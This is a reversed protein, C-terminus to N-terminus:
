QEENWIEKPIIDLFIPTREGVYAQLVNFQVFEEATEYDMLDETMYKNIIEDISYVAIYGNPTNAIGLFAHEQGDALVIDEDINALFKKLNNQKSM